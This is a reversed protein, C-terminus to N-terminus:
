RKVGIGDLEVKYGHSAASKQHVVVVKLTASHPSTYSKIPIRVRKRTTSSYTNIRMIKTSGIYVDAMGGYASKTVVLGVSRGGSFAYKAWAGSASAM